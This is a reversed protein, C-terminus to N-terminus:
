LGPTQNILLWYLGLVRVAENFQEFDVPKIMYSNVGLDYSKVIDREERSSTVVVVPIRRTRPDAKVLRLAGTAEEKTLPESIVWLCM